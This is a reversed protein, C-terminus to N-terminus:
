PLNRLMGAQTVAELAPQRPEISHHMGLARHGALHPLKYLPLGLLPSKTAKLFPIAKSAARSILQSSHAELFFTPSYSGQQWARPHRGSGVTGVVPPSLLWWGSSRMLKSRTEGHPQLSGCCGVCRIKQAPWCGTFIKKLNPYLMCYLASLARIRLTYNLSM